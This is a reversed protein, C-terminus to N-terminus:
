PSRVLACLIPNTHRMRRDEPGIGMLDYVAEDIQTQISAVQAQVDRERQWATAGLQRLTENPPSFTRFINLFLDSLQPHESRVRDDSPWRFHESHVHGAPLGFQGPIQAATVLAAAVFYPSIEDTTRLVLSLAYATYALQGLVSLDVQTPYPFQAVSGNLINRNEFIRAVYFIFESNLYGLTSWLHQSDLFLGNVSVTFITGKPLHRTNMRSQNSPYQPSKHWSLGEKFCFTDNRVAAGEYSRIAEGDNKWDVVNDIDAQFVDLWGGLAYPV